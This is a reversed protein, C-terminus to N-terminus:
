ELHCSKEKPPSTDEDSLLENRTAAKSASLAGDLCCTSHTLSAARAVRGLTLTEAGAEVFELVEATTLRIERTISFLRVKLRRPKFTLKPGVLRKVGDDSKKFTDIQALGSM